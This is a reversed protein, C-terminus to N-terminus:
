WVISAIFADIHTTYDLEPIGVNSNMEGHSYPQPEFATRVGLRAAKAIFEQAQACPDDPRSTSCALMMPFSTSRLQAQPSTKVWFAKDDGFADDYLKVHHHSMYEVVDLAGSDLVVAGRWSKAGQEYAIQPNSTLLAVLHAGASHGMLVVRAADGHWKEANKQVYALALAVDQAQEYPDAGDDLLRYNTSVVVYGKAKWYNVKNTVLDPMAKDGRRWGGGHVIMLIPTSKTSALKPVYVDLRQHGSKGYSLNRYTPKVIDSLGVKSVQKSLMLERTLSADSSAALAAGSYLACILFGCLFLRVM